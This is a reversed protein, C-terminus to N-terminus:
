GGCVKQRASQERGCALAQLEGILERTQSGRSGKVMVIDNARISACVLTALKKSSTAHGGRLRSPLSQHLTAMFKGGTFVQDIGAHVLPEVLAAHLEDSRPGLELMDGLVAIRRGGEFIIAQGLVQIAAEMSVPCANYSEDILAFSGGPIRINRRDGRGTIAPLTALLETAKSFDAGCADVAALVAVSNLALHKGPLGLTYTVQEDYPTRVRLVSDTAGLNVELLQWDAENRTGFTMIRKVKESQAREILRQSMRNDINIIGTGGKVLGQFIEAKADAIQELSEFYEQHTEAVTTILAVHPQAIRSLAAIEGPNNMGMEFVGYSKDCSMRALSLPLGWHNNLNGQTAHVGNLGSKQAGLVWKLAEKTGTKGVSGTVAIISATARARAARGLDQLAVMTDPVVLLRNLDIGQGELDRGDAVVAAAAGRAVANGIFKHGDHVPGQIAVFLDGVRTKRSDITVGSAVWNGFVKGSVAHAADRATWLHQQNAEVTM